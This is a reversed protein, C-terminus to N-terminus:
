KINKEMLKLYKIYVTFGSSISIILGRWGDLFGKKLFYTRFFAFFANIFIRNWSIRRALLFKKEASLSTYFDIKLLHHSISKYPIHKLYNKLKASCGDLIMREHVIDTSFKCKSRKALRLTYDPYWGCHYIDKGLYNSLRPIFYGNIDNNLSSQVKQLIEDRLEDSVREDADLFLVWDENAFELARQKQIGFGQWDTNTHFNKTYKTSINKTDDSSGSDLIIIESAWLVSKLCDEINSQENKTIILVSIM